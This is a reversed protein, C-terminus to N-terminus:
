REIDPLPLDARLKVALFYSDLRQARKIKALLNVIETDSRGVRSIDVLDSRVEKWTIDNKSVVEAEIRCRLCFAIRHRGLDFANLYLLETDDGVAISQPNNSSLTMRARTPVEDLVDSLYRLGRQASEFDDTALKTNPAGAAKLIKAAAESLGALTEWHHLNDIPQDLEFSGLMPARPKKRAELRLHTKGDGVMCILRYFDAWESARLQSDSIAAAETVFTCEINTMPGSADRVSLMYRFLDSRILLRYEGSPLVQDPLRYVKGKFSTSPGLPQKEFTITCTDIPHPKFEFEASPSKMEPFPLTIGFRTESSDINIADIKRLGFLADIIEENNKATLTTRVSIAGEGYGASTINHKKSAIYKNLDSGIIYEVYNRFSNGSVDPLTTAWKEVSFSFKIKSIARKDFDAQRLRRLIMELFAGNVHIISSRTYNLQRDVHLIHVFSPKPEKALREMAALNVEINRNESWLTKVQVRCSLPASRKDLSTTSSQAFPWDVIADWGTRDWTSVNPFLGADVCLEVFRQEGKKGLQDSNL